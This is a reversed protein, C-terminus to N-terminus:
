HIGGPFLANECSTMDAMNTNGFLSLPAMNTNWVNRHLDFEKRLYFNEKTGIIKCQQQSHSIAFGGPYAGGGGGIRPSLVSQQM